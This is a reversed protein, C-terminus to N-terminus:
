HYCCSCNGVSPKKMCFKMDRDRDFDTFNNHADCIRRGKDAFLRGYTASTVPPSRVSSSRRWDMAICPLLEERGAMSTAPPSRVPPDGGRAAIARPARRSLSAPSLPLLAISMAPFDAILPRHPVPSTTPSPPPPAARRRFRAAQRRLHRRRRRRPSSHRSPFSPPPPIYVRNM